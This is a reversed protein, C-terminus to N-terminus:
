ATGEADNATNAERRIELPERAVEDAKTEADEDEAQHTDEGAARDEEQLSQALLCPLIGV